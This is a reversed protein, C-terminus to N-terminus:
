HQLSLLLEIEKADTSKKVADSLLNYSESIRNISISDRKSLDNLIMASLYSDSNQQIYNFNYDISEQEIATMQNSITKLKLADNELRARQIDPFLLEIKNFIKESKNQYYILEDNLKSGVVKASVLDNKDTIISISDNELIFLKGGFLTDITVLFREPFDIKGKYVAINNKVIASDILTPKLALKYLYSKYGDINQTTITLTYGDNLLVKPVDKVCSVVFFTVFLLTISDKITVRM